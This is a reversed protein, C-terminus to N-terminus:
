FYGIEFRFNAIKGQIKYGKRHSLHSTPFHPFIPPFLGWERPIPDKFLWCFGDTDFIHDLEDNSTAQLVKDRVIM